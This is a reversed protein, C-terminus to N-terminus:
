FGCMRCFLYGGQLIPNGLVLLDKQETEAVMEDIVERQIENIDCFKEIIRDMFFVDESYRIEEYIDHIAKLEIRIIDDDKRTAHQQYWSIQEDMRKM